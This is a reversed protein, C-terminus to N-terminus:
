LNKRSPIFRDEAMLHYLQKKNREKYNFNSMSDLLREHGIMTILSSQIPKHKLTSNIPNLKDYIPSYLTSREYSLQSPFYGPTKIYEESHSISFHNM